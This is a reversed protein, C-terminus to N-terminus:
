VYHGILAVILGVVACAQGILWFRMTIKTKEWGLANFHHHIPAAIFIKRHFIKKSLIQLLTSGAEAVFVFAIIPLLLLTNTLMAVVGLATGLSFSGVDGMLFRAPAINFWLYAILAGVVTFCFGAIGYSGQLFAILGFAGYASTLLGGALGDMGDSINVANGASVVALTFLPILWLGIKLDSHGWVHVADYGLKYYFFWAAAAAVITLLGFKVQPRLGAVKGGKGLINIIDDILGVIGGGILGALLLWTQSRSLNWGYTVVFVAVITVLGAMMPLTRKIRLSSIVSLEEGTTSHTRHRKWWKHKFAFHTYVPTLVMAFILSALCLVLIKTLKNQLEQDIMYINRSERFYPWSSLVTTILLM